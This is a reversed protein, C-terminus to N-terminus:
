RPASPPLTTDLSLIPFAGPTDAGKPNASDPVKAKLAHDARTFNAEIRPKRLNNVAARTPFCSALLNVPPGSNLRNALIRRAAMIFSFRTDAFVRDGERRTLPGAVVRSFIPMGYFAIEHQLNETTHNKM